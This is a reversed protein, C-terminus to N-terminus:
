EDSLSYLVYASQTSVVRAFKWQNTMQTTLEPMGKANGETLLWHFGNGKFYDHDLLPQLILPDKFPFLMFARRKLYYPAFASWGSSSLVIVPEDKKIQRAAESLYAVSKNSTAVSGSLTGLPGSWERVALGVLLLIFLVQLFRTRLSQFILSLGIGAFLALFPTCAILYYSHIVYLNFFVVIGILPALALSAGMWLNGGPWRAFRHTCFPLAFFGIVAAFGLSRPTMNEVRRFIRAWNDWSLRQEWTGYTWHKMDSQSLSLLATYPLQQKIHDGYRTYGYGALVPIILLVALALAHVLRLELETSVNLEAHGQSRPLGIVALFQATWWQCRLLNFFFLSAITGATVLPIAFTTTKTLSALIGLVLALVFLWRKPRILWHVLGLLYALGFFTAAYEIMSTRSWFASYSSFLFVASAFLGARSEAFFLSTLIALAAATLYFFLLNTVRISVDLNTWPAVYDVAAAIMQFVPYEFPCEWPPGFLPLRPHLPSFGHERIEWVSIATQTQRFEHEGTFPVNLDVFHIPLSLAVLALFIFAPRSFFRACIVGFLSTRDPEM